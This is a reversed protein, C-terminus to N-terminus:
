LFGSDDYDLLKVIVEIEKPTVHYESKVYRNILESFHKAEIAGKTNLVTELETINTQM